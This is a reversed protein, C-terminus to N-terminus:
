LAPVVEGDKSIFRDAYLLAAGTDDAVQLM